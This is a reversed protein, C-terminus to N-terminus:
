LNSGDPVDEKVHTKDSITVDKGISVNEDVKVKDGIKTKEGVKVNKSLLTKKGVQTEKGVKSNSDIISKKEILAKEAIEVKEGISTKMGITSEKEIVTEQGIATKQEVKVDEDISVKKEITTKMEIKTRSGINSEEKIKVKKGIEVKEKIKVKKGIESGSGIKVDKDITTGAEIKVNNGIEVNEDIVVSPDIETGTGITVDPSVCTDVGYISAEDLMYKEDATRMAGGDFLLSVYQAEVCDITLAMDHHKESSLPGFLDELNFFVPTGFNIGDTSFSIAVDDPAENNNPSSVYTGLVIETIQYVQGLNFIIRAAPASGPNPGRIGVLTNVGRGGSPHGDAMIAGDTLDGTGFNGLGLSQVPHLDDKYHISQGPIPDVGDALDGDEYAYPKSLAVNTPSAAQVITGTLGLLALAISLSICRSLNPSNTDM